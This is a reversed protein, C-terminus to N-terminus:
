IAKHETQWAKAKNPGNLGRQIQTLNYHCVLGM